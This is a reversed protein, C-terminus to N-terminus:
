RARGGRKLPAHYEFLFEAEDHRTPPISSGMQALTERWVGPASFLTRTRGVAGLDDADWLFAIPAWVGMARIASALEMSSLAKAVGQVVIWDYDPSGIRLEALAGAGDACHTIAHGNGADSFFRELNADKGVLLIKM